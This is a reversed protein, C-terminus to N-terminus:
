AMDAPPQLATNSDLANTRTQMLAADHVTGKEKTINCNWSVNLAAELETKKVRSLGVTGFKPHGYTANSASPM